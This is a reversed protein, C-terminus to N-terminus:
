RARAYATAAKTEPYARSAVNRARNPEPMHSAMPCPHSEECGRTGRLLPPASIASSRRQRFRQKGEGNEGSQAPPEDTSTIEADIADGDKGPTTSVGIRGKAVSGALADEDEKARSGRGCASRDHILNAM